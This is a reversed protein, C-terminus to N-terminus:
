QPFTLKSLSLCEHVSEYVDNSFGFAGGIYFAMHRTGKNMAQGLLGSFEMSSYESGKEDLLVPYDVNTLSGLIQKAEEEKIISESNSSSIRPKPFYVIQFSIYHRLRKLYNDIGDRIYPDDNRGATFLTIKV